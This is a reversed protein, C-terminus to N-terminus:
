KGGEDVDGEGSDWQDLGPGIQLPEASGGERAAIQMQTLTAIDAPLM